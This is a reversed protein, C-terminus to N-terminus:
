RSQGSGITHPIMRYFAAVVDYFPAFREIFMDRKLDQMTWYLHRLVDPANTLADQALAVFGNLDGTRMKYVFKKVRDLDGRGLDIKHRRLGSIDIVKGGKINDDTLDTYDIGRTLAAMYLKERARAYDKPGTTAVYDSVIWSYTEGDVDFTAGIHPRNALHRAARANHMDELDSAWTRDQRNIKLAFAVDGITVKYVSAATGSAIYDIKVRQGFIDPAHLKVRAIDAHTMNYADVAAHYDRAIQTMADIFERTAAARSRDGILAALDPPLAGRHGHDFYTFKKM